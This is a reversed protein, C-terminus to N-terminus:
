TGGRALEASAIDRSHPEAFPLSRITELAARLRAIETRQERITASDHAYAVKLADYGEVAEEAVRARDLAATLEIADDNRCEQSIRLEDNEDDVVAARAALETALARARTALDSM